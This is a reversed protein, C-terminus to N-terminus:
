IAPVAEVGDNRALPDRLHAAPSLSRSAVAICLAVGCYGDYGAL